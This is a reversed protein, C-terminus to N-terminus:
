RKPARIRLVGWQGIPMTHLLISIVSSCAGRKAPMPRGWPHDGDTPDNKNDSAKALKLWYDVMDNAAPLAIICSM